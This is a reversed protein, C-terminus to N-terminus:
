RAPRGPSSPSSRRPAPAPAAAWAPPSSSWTPAACWRPRPHRREGRGRARRDRAPRRRRAGQDAQRRHPRLDAGQQGAPGPRRHQGLRVRHRRRRRRGDPQDANGGAGGVGVVKIRAFPNPTMAWGDAREDEGSWPRPPQGNSGGDGSGPPRHASGSGSFEGQAQRLAQGSGASPPDPSRRSPDVPPRGSAATRDSTPPPEPRRQGRTPGQGQSQM